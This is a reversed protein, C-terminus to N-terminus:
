KIWNGVKIQAGQDHFWMLIFNNWFVKPIEQNQTPFILQM